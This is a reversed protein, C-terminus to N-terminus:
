NRGTADCLKKYLNDSSVIRKLDVDSNMEKKLMTSIDDFLRNSFQEMNECPRNSNALESAYSNAIEQVRQFMRCQYCAKYMGSLDTSTYWADISACCNEDLLMGLVTSKRSGTNMAMDLIYQEMTIGERKEMYGSGILETFRSYLDQTLTGKSKSHYEARRLVRWLDDDSLVINKIVDSVKDFRDAGGKFCQREFDVDDKSPLIGKMQILHRFDWAEVKMSRGDVILSLQNDINGQLIDNATKESVTSKMEANVDICRRGGDQEMTIDDSHTPNGRSGEM